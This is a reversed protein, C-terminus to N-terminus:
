RYRTGYNVIKLEDRSYRIHFLLRLKFMSKINKALIKTLNRIFQTDINNVM